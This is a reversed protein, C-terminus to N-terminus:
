ELELRLQQLLRMSRHRVAQASIGLIQGVEESTFGIAYRLAVLQRDEVPMRALCTALDSLSPHAEPAFSEPLPINLERTRRRALQRAENSVVTLLWPRLKASDRVQRLHRWVNIWASQSAEEALSRDGLILYAVRLFDSHHEEVLAAFAEPDGTAARRLLVGPESGM